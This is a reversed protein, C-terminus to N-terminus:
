EALEVKRGTKASELAAEVVKVTELAVAGDIPPRGGSQVAKAFDELERRFSTGKIPMDAHLVFKPVFKFPGRMRNILNGAFYAETVSSTMGTKLWGKQGVVRIYRDCADWNGFGPTWYVNVSGITGGEFFMKIEAETERDQEGRANARGTCAWVAEVRRPAFYFNLLDIYHPALDPIIGEEPKIGLSEEFATAAFVKGLKGSAVIDRVKAHHPMYRLYHGVMLKCGAADAAAMMRRADAVTTALPKEVFVHKGAAFLRCAVEAHTAAPTCVIAADLPVGAALAQDVTSFRREPPVNFKEGAAKLAEERPDVLANLCIRPIVQTNPLHAEAAIGGCGVVAVNLRELGSKM